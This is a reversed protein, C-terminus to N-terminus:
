VARVGRAVLAAVLNVATFVIITGLPDHIAGGAASGLAGAAMAVSTVTTMLQARVAPPTHRQRLAITGSYAPGEVVGTLGVLM